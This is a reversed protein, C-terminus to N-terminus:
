NGPTKILGALQDLQCDEGYASWYLEGTEVDVLKAQYACVEGGYVTGFVIGRLGAIKGLKIIDELRVIGKLSINQEQLVKELNQRDVVDYGAGLLLGAFKDAWVGGDGDRAAVLFPYVGVRMAPPPLLGPNFAIVSAGSERYFGAPPTNSWAGEGLTKQMAKRLAGDVARGVRSVQLKNEAENAINWVVRATGTEVLKVSVPPPESIRPAGAMTYSHYPDKPNPKGFVIGDVGLLAGIRPAQVPNVLGSVSLGQEGLIKEMSGREMVRYGLSLLLTEWEGAIRKQAPTEAFPLVSVKRVSNLESNPNRTIQPGACAGFAAAAALLAAARLM